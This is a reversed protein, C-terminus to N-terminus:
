YTVQKYASYKTYLNLHEKVLTQLNMTHYYLKDWWFGMDKTESFFYQHFFKRFRQLFKTKEFKGQWDLELESTLDIIFRAKTMKKKSGGDIVEVDQMDWIHIYTTVIFRVYSSEERRGEWTVEIESGGPKVKYGKERLEYDKDGYWHTIFKYLSDWDFVGSYQVRQKPLPITVGM